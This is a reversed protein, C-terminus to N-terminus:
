LDPRDRVHVRHVLRGPLHAEGGDPLRREGRDEEGQRQRHDRDHGDANRDLLEEEGEGLGHEAQLRWAPGPQFRALKNATPITIWFSIGDSCAGYASSGTPFSGLPTLDAAKWLSVVSTVFNTVLVRQGDFAAFEPGIMGNGTLTALVAGTSPRVIS